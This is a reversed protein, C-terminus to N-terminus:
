IYSYFEKEGFRIPIATIKVIKVGDIM